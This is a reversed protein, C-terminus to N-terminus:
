AQLAEAMTARTLVVRAAGDQLWRVLVPASGAAAAGAAAPLLQQMEECEWDPLGMVELVTGGRAGIRECAATLVKRDAAEGVAAAAVAPFAIYHPEPYALFRAVVSPLEAPPCPQPDAAGAAKSFVGTSLYRDGRDCALVVITAFSVSASLRLAASIAGGASVGV